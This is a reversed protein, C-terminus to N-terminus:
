QDKRNGSLPRVPLTEPDFSMAYHEMFALMRQRVDLWTAARIHGGQTDVWYKPENAAEFVERGFSQPVIQDERSHIVMLPTNDLQAVADVPDYEANILWLAPYQAIWTLWHRSAVHKAIKDYRSFPAELILGNFHEDFAPELKAYKAALSAGLSQGYLYRPLQNASSQESARKELWRTGADIDLFVEPLTPVGQSLGYGRYDLAFVEYNQNVLWLVARFHTSINEANGHLFYVTGIAPKRPKLLWGHIMKNDKTRLFVDDFLYSFAAPTTVHPKQPYFFLSHCASLALSGALLIFVRLRHLIALVRRRDM